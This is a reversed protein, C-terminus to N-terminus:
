RFKGALVLSGKPLPGGPADELTVAFGAYNGVNAPAVTTHKAVGGPDPTFVGGAQPNAGPESPLLWFEYVKGPPLPELKDALLYADQTDPNFLVTGTASYPAQAAIEFARYGPPINFTGAFKKEQESLASSLSWVWAGMLLIIVAAAASLVPVLPSRQRRARAEAFDIIREGESSTSAPARGVAISPGGVVIDLQSTSLRPPASATADVGHPTAALKALFRAKHGEPPEAPAVSSGLVAVTGSYERALALRARSEDLQREFEAASQPDMAGFTFDIMREEWEPDVMNINNPQDSNVNNSVNHSHYQNEIDDM